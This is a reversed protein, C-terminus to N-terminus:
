EIDEKKGLPTMSLYSVKDVVQKPTVHKYCEFFSCKEKICKQRCSNEQLTVAAVKTGFPKWRNPFDSKLAFITVVPIGMVAAIHGPGSDASIFVKFSLMLAALEKLTTQGSFDVSSTKMASRIASIIEKETSSGVFVVTGGLKESIHDAIAAFHSVPWRRVDLKMGKTFHVGWYPQPFESYNNELRERMEQALDMSVPFLVQAKEVPIGLARVYDLMVETWHSVTDGYETRVRVKHTYLFSYFLKSGSGVRIPIKAKYLLWAEKSGNWLVIGIDFHGEKIKSLWFNFNASTIRGEEVTFIENVLNNGEFIDEMGKRVMVSVSSNRYYNKLPSLVVSSLLVDGIGGGLIIVLIRKGFDDFSEADAFNM